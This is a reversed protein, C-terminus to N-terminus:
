LKEGAPVLWNEDGEHDAEKHDEIESWIEIGIQVFKRVALEILVEPVGACKILVVSLPVPHHM